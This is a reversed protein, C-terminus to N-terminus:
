EFRAGLLRKLPKAEPGARIPDNYPSSIGREILLVSYKQSLTAVLPCGTAGGGVVIYDFSKGSIESLTSTMHPLTFEQSKSLLFFSVTFVLHITRQLEM